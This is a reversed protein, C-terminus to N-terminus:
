GIQKNKDVVGVMVISDTTQVMKFQFKFIGKREIVKDIMFQTYLNDFEKICEVKRDEFKFSDSYETAIIKFEKVQLKKIADEFSPIVFSESDSLLSM